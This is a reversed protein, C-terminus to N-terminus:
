AEKFSFVMQFWHECALNVKQILLGVLYNRPTPLVESTLSAANQM